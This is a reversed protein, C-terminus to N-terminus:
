GAVFALTNVVFKQTDSYKPFKRYERGNKINGEWRMQKDTKRETKSKERDRASNDEDHWFIKFNPWVM